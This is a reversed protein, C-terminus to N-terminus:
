LERLNKENKTKEEPLLIETGVM